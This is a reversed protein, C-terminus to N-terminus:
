FFISRDLDKLYKVYFYSDEKERIGIFNHPYEPDFVYFTTACYLYYKSCDLMRMYKNEKSFKPLNKIKNSLKSERIFNITNNSENRLNVTKCNNKMHRSLHYKSSFEKCCFSCTKELKINKIHKKTGLHKNYNSQDNCQYNCLKCLYKSM